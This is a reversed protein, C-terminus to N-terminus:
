KNASTVPSEVLEAANDEYIKRLPGQPLITYDKEKWLREVLVRCANDCHLTNKIGVIAFNNVREDPQVPLIYKGCVDCVAGSRTIM